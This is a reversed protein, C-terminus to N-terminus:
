EDKELEDLEDKLTKGKTQEKLTVASLQPTVFKQAELWIKCKKDPEDIRHFTAKFEEFTENCFDSLLARMEGSVKNPTGKQRGGLRGRGDNKERPKGM